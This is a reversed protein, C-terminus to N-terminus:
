RSSGGPARLTFFFLSGGGEAGELGAEGGLKRAIRRVISLGLGHGKAPTTDLRTCPTFLRERDRAPIGPGNDKVWFRVEGGGAPSAGLLVRPPRGGYKVANSVYNSWIEEVWPAHGLAAPWSDPHTVEAKSEDIAYALRDLVEAVVAKMDLEVLPPSEKRVGALLLLEDIIRAMRWGSRAIYGIHHANTPDKGTDSNELLEAMGLIANLPNRLDHAVTHAFADLEEILLAEREHTLTLENAKQQLLRQKEQGERADLFVVWDDAGARFIHVDAPWGAGSDVCPVVLPEDAPLLGVLAPIREAVDTGTELGPLGYPEVAGGSDRLRGDPGVQLFAPSRRAVEVEALYDRM